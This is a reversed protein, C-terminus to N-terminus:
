ETRRVGLLDRSLVLRLFCPQGAFAGLVVFRYRRHPHFDSTRRISFGRTAVRFHANTVTVMPAAWRVSQLPLRFFFLHTHMAKHTRTSRVCVVFLSVRKGIQSVGFYWIGISTVCTLRRDYRRSGPACYCAVSLPRAICTVHVRRALAGGIHVCVCDALISIIYVRAARRGSM